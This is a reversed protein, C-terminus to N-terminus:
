PTVFVAPTLYLLKIYFYQSVYTLKYVCRTRPHTVRPGNIFVPVCVPLTIIQDGAAM